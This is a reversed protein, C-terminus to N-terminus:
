VGYFAQQEALINLVDADSIDRAIWIESWHFDQQSNNFTTTGIILGHPIPRPPLSPGTGPAVATTQNSWARFGSGVRRSAAMMTSSTNSIPVQVDPGANDGGFGYVHQSGSAMIVGRFVRENAASQLRVTAADGAFRRSPGSGAVYVNSRPMGLDLTTDGETKMGCSFGSGSRAQLRSNSGVTFLAGSADSIPFQTSVAGTPVLDTSYVQDYVRVIFGRSTGIHASIAATDVVGEGTVGIDVEANDSARRVRIIPGTYQPNIRRAVSWGGLIQASPAVTNWVTSTPTVNILITQDAQGALNRARISLTFSQPASIGGIPAATTLAGTNSIAWTNNTNGSLITVSLPQDGTIQAAAPTPSANVRATAPITFTQGAPIVPADVAQSITVVITATNSTGAPNTVTVGLTRSTPAAPLTNAVRIEVQKGAVLHASFHNGTNGSVIAASTAVTGTYSFTGVTFGVAANEAVEGTPTVVSLVPAVATGTVTVTVTNSWHTVETEGRVASGSITRARVTLTQNGVALQGTGSRKIAGGRTVTFPNGAPQSVIEFADHNANSGTTCRPVPGTWDILGLVTGEPVDVATTFPTAPQVLTPASNWAWTWQPPFLLNTQANAAGQVNTPENSPFGNLQKRESRHRVLADRANARRTLDTTLAAAWAASNIANMYWDNGDSAYLSWNEPIFVDFNNVVDQWSTAPVSRFTRDYMYIDPAGSLMHRQLIDSANIANCRWAFWGDLAATLNPGGVGARKASALGYAYFANMFQSVHASETHTGFIGFETTSHRAAILPESGAMMATWAQVNRTYFIRNPYADPLIIDADVIDRFWWAQSRNQAHSISPAWAVGTEHNPTLTRWNPGVPERITQGNWRDIVTTCEAARHAVLDYFSRRASLLAPLAYHSGRHAQDSVIHNTTNNQMGQGSVISTADLRSRPSPDPADNTFRMKPWRDAMVPAQIEVDRCIWGAAAFAESQLHVLLQARRVAAHPVVAWLTQEATRYGIEPRGGPAGQGRILGWTWYPDTVSASGNNLQSEVNTQGVWTPSLLDTMYPLLCNSDFLVQRDPRFLPRFVNRFDYLKAGKKATRRMWWNYQLLDRAPGTAPRQNHTITGDIEVTYGFRAIGGGAVHLADNRWQPDVEIMGDKTVTVDVVLRLSTPGNGGSTSLTATTPVDIAVRRSLALPGSLWDDSSALLAAGVDYTWLPTTTNGPAWTKILISRGSLASSWTLAAGPSPHAENRRLRVQLLAGNALAPLEAAFAATKVTGDPWTALPTMQTRLPANNDARRLVVSSTPYLAGAPFSHGFIVVTDAGDGSGDFTFTALNMEESTGITVDDSTATPGNGNFTARLRYVGATEPTTITATWAGNSFNTIAIPQGVASNNQEWVLTASIMTGSYSGSVALQASTSLPGTPSVITIGPLPAAIIQATSASAAEVTGAINTATVIVRLTRDVDASQVTYSAATAGAIQSAGRQWQFAFQIPTTGTWSGTTATLVEGEQAIGSIAPATTNVPPLLAPMVAATPVATAQAAGGGNTATVLVSLVQGVDAAQATYTAATAGTIATTGRRWQFAFQIPSTGSWEGTTATLLEGQRPIGSIVPLAINTPAVVSVTAEEPRAIRLALSGAPITVTGGAVIEVATVLPGVWVCTGGKEATYLGAHTHIGATATFSGFQVPAANTGMARKAVVTVPRRAYGGVSAEDVLGEPTEGKGLALFYHGAMARMALM